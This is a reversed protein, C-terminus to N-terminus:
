VSNKSEVRQLKSEVKQIAQRNSGIQLRCKSQDESEFALSSEVNMVNHQRGNGRASSIESIGDMLRMLTNDQDMM